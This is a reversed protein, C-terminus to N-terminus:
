RKRFPSPSRSSHKFTKLMKNQIAIVTERDKRSRRQSRPADTLPKFITHQEEIIVRQQERSLRKTNPANFMAPDGGSGAM